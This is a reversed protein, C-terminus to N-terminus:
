DDDDDDSELEAIKLPFEGMISLAIRIGIFVGQHIDSGAEITKDNLKLDCEPHAIIAGLQDRTHNHKAEAQLVVQMADNSIAGKNAPKDFGVFESM